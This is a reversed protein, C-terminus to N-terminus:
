GRFRRALRRELEQLAGQELDDDLHADRITDRGFQHAMATAVVPNVDKRMVEEIEDRFAKEVRMQMTHRQIDNNINYGAKILETFVRAAVPIAMQAVAGPVSDPYAITLRAGTEATILESGM